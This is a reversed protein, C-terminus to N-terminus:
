ISMLFTISLVNDSNFFVYLVRIAQLKEVLCVHMTIVFVTQAGTSKLRASDKECKQMDHHVNIMVVEFGGEKEYSCFIFFIFHTFCSSSISDVTRENGIYQATLNELMM